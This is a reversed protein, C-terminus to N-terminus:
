GAQYTGFVRDWLAFRKAYNVKLVQHHRDHDETYLEIGLWRPLWILQAFSSTPRMRKGLHGGIEQYTLYTNLCVFEFLTFKVGLVLDMVALSFGLPIQHSFFFDPVSMYFSSEAMPASFQHHTKHIRLYLRRDSHLLRHFWYHWFDFILEFVFSSVVFWGVWGGIMLVRSVGIELWSREVGLWSVGTELWSVVDIWINREALVFWRILCDDFFTKLLSLKFVQVLVERRSIARGIIRNSALQIDKKDDTLYKMGYLLLGSKLVLGLWHNFLSEQDVLWFRYGLWSLGILTTNIVGSIWVSM